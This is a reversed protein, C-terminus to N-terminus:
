QEGTPKNQSSDATNNSNAHRKKNIGFVHVEVSLYGQHVTQDAATQCGGSGAVNISSHAM